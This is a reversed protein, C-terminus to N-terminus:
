PKELVKGVEHYTKGKGDPFNNKKYYKNGEAKAQLPLFFIDKTCGCLGHIGCLHLVPIM